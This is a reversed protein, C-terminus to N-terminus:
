QVPLKEYKRIRYESNEVMGVLKYHKLVAERIWPYRELPANVSEFIWGYTTDLRKIRREAIEGYIEPTLPLEYAVLTNPYLWPRFRFEPFYAREIEAIYRALMLVPVQKPVEAISILERLAPPAEPLIRTVDSAIPSLYTMKSFNIREFHSLTALIIATYLCCICKEYAAKVPDPMSLVPMLAYIVGSFFVLLPLTGILKFDRSDPLYYSFTAWLGAVAAYLVAACVANGATIRANEFCSKCAVVMVGFIYLWCITVELRMPRTSTGHAEDVYSNAYATFLRMDPLHGLGIYYVCTIILAAGAGLAVPARLRMLANRILLSVTSAEGSSLIQAVSMLAMCPLWILTMFVASEYSWLVGALWLANGVACAHRPLSQTRLFHKYAYLIYGALPYVWFFRMAGTSPIHRPDAANRWLLMTSSLAVTLCLVFGAFSRHRTRLVLFLIYSSLALLAGNLLYLSQWTNDTPLIAMLLTHLFGYQAPVDWLLWGGDRVSEAPELWARWHHVPYPNMLGDLRFHMLAFVYLAAGHYLVAYRNGNVGQPAGSSPRCLAAYMAVLSIVFPLAYIRLPIFFNLNHISIRLCIAMSCLLFWMIGAGWLLRATRERVEYRKLCLCAIFFVLGWLWAWRWGFVPLIAYWTLAMAAYAACAMKLLAFGTRVREPLAAEYWRRAFAGIIVAAAWLAALLYYAWDRGEGEPMSFAVLQLLVIILGISWGYDAVQKIHPLASKM